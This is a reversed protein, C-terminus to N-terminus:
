RMGLSGFQCSIKSTTRAGSARGFPPAGYLKGEPRRRDRPLIEDAARPRAGASTSLRHGDVIAELALEEERLDHSLRGVLLDLVVEVLEDDIRTKTGAHGPEDVAAADLAQERDEVQALRRGVRPRAGSHLRGPAGGHERRRVEDITQQAHVLD